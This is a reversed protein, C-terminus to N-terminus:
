GDHGSLRHGQCRDIGYLMGARDVGSPSVDRGEVVGSVDSGEISSFLLISLLYVFYIYIALIVTILRGLHKLAM